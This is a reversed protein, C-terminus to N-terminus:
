FHVGKRKNEESDNRKTDSCAILQIDRTDFIQKKVLPIGWKGVTEFENRMFLVNNRMKKSTM